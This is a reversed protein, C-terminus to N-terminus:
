KPSLGPPFTRSKPLQPVKKKLNNLSKLREEGGWWGGSAPLYTSLGEEKEALYPELDSTAIYTGRGGERAPM